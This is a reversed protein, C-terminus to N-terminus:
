RDGVDDLLRCVYLLCRVDLPSQLHVLQHPIILMMCHVEVAEATNLVSVVSLKVCVLATVSPCVTTFINAATAFALILLCLLSYPKLAWHAFDPVM